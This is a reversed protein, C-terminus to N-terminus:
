TTWTTQIKWQMQEFQEYSYGDKEHALFVNEKKLFSTEYTEKYFLEPASKTDDLILYRHGIEPHNQLWQEIQEHRLKSGTRPTKWDKHFVFQLGNAKLLGEIHRKEHLQEDAWSSSIVLQYDRTNKLENLIGIAFPDAQWYKVYPHLELKLCQEECYKGKNKVYMHIKEPFIPGDFDLFIVANM